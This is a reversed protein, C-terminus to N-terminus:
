IKKEKKKKKKGFFNYKLREFRSNKKESNVKTLSFNQNRWYKNHFSCFMIVTAINFANYLNSPTSVPMSPFPAGALTAMNSSM